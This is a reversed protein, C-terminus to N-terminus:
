LPHASRLIDIFFDGAMIYQHAGGDLSLEEMYNKYWYTKEYDVYPADAVNLFNGEISLTALPFLDNIAIDYVDDGAMIIKSLDAGCDSYTLDVQTFVLDVNLIEEVSRNRFFASDSVLDGTEEEPGEILYNSNGVGSAVNISTYISIEEGGYDFEAFPDPESTETVAATETTPAATDAAPAQDADGCSALATGALTLLALLSAISRKNM